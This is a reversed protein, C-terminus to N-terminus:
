QRNGNKDWTTVDGDGDEYIAMVMQGDENGSVVVRGGNVDISIEM